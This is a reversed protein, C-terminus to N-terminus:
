TGEASVDSGGIYLQGAKDFRCVKLVNAEFLHPTSDEGVFVESSLSEVIPEVVDLEGIDQLIDTSDGEDTGGCHALTMAIMSMGVAVVVLALFGWWADKINKQQCPLCYGDVFQVAKPGFLTLSLIRNPRYADVDRRCKNTKCSM